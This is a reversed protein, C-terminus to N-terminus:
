CVFSPEDHRTCVHRTCCAQNLCADLLMGYAFMGQAFMGQTYPHHEVGCFSLWHQCHLVCVSLQPTCAVSKALRHVGPLFVSFALRGHVCTSALVPLMIVVSCVDFTRTWDCVCGCSLVPLHLEANQSVFPHAHVNVGCCM